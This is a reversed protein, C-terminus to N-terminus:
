YDNDSFHTGMDRESQELASEGEMKWPQFFGEQPWQVNSVDKCTEM